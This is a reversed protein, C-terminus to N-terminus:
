KKNKKFINIWLRELIYPLTIHCWKGNNPTSWNLLTEWFEIPKNNIIKKNVAFQAGVVFHSTENYLELDKIITEREILYGVDFHKTGIETFDDIFNHNNLFDILDNYGYENISGIHEFPDGQLFISVESLNNYNNIIHHLYTQSERGYNILSISPISLNNEGKNYVFFNFKDTDLKEVWSIDENYRAVILDIKM